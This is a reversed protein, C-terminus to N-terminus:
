LKASQKQAIAASNSEYDRAGSSLAVLASHMGALQGALGQKEFQLAAVKVALDNALRQLRSKEQRLRLNDWQLRVYSRFM